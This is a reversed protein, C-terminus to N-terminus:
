YDKFWFSKPDDCFFPPLAVKLPTPNGNLGIFGNDANLATIREQVEDPSFTGDEYNFGNGAGDSSTVDFKVLHIHQGIIDTPTRVQFDDLEYYAPVLNTLWYEIVKDSDARFFLPEPRRNGDLNDKVDGWLSIIRQQPYHWGKKNLVVDMQIDAAKYRVCNSGSAGCNDSNPIANGFIDVGPDAFPAGPKPTQGNLIFPAPQGNPTFSPHQRVAHTAMAVQEVETGEEAVEVGLLKDNDKSFDWANHQEYLTGEEKLFQSRPLGGDLFQKQGNIVIQNGNADEEPAFDLPPHPARQGAVGPIFFPFGPNKEKLTPDDLDTRSVLGRYGVPTANPPGAPCSNGTFQVYDTSGFVPCIRTKIPIPAMPLTPMPVVAPIPTGTAIEGDPLARNWDLIPAGNADLRTGSEFVDHVRWLSWMGQAFHPYFHCHFISDGVTQNLNGSGFYAMDLTYSGGPSLMQSDRYDSDDSNPSHLWQHAHQHHVHTINTGAHLIRFQVHDGLYSHYVNSPDDPYLAKTAKIKGPNNAPFDVVMAPDSVSWSSLFFEEFKCTACQNMPGVQIRNAWVEPGISAMGYNIAFFDRAAQLAFTVDCTNNAQCEPTELGTFEPFAQTTVPDDHYHIAFERYPQRRDPYTPNPLFAPDSSVPFLGANPGTIIATLDSHVINLNPDLMALIPTGSPIPNGNSYTSGPPYVAQYNIIPHFDRTKLLGNQDVPDNALNTQTVEATFAGVGTKTLTWLKYTKGGSTFTQQPSGKPTIQMNAPLQGGNFTALDLDTHTVQSRYWEASRPQVMVAGFLGQTLQGGFGNQFGVDAATSYLLFAGEEGACFKYTRQEGPAALSGFSTAPTSPNAGIWSGDAQLEKLDMGMVHVGALRTASQSTISDDPDPDNTTKLNAPNFPLGGGIGISPINALLNQFEIQMCDGVNMRLVIPRPRKDPRLMVNGATLNPDQQNVNNVVDRQLAFIMGGAQFSGLRNNYFAQDLAVVRAVITRQAHALPATTLVSLFTLVIRSILHAKM